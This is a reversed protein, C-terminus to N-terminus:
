CSRAQVRMVAYDAQMEVIASGEPLLALEDATRAQVQSSYEVNRANAGFGSADSAGTACGRLWITTLVLAVRRQM